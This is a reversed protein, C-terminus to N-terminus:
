ETIEEAAYEAVAIEQREFHAFDDDLRAMLQTRVDAEVFATEVSNYVMQKVEAYCVDTEAIASAFEHSIDTVFIGEDDTSLSVRLGLRLLNLFSHGALDDACGLRLSSTLNVEVPLRARAAYELISPDDPWRSGHGIREAGLLIADRINRVDGMGAAHFKRRWVPTAVDDSFLKGFLSQGAEFAPYDREPGLVDIGVINPFPHESLMATLTRLQRLHERGAIARHFGCNIRVIIGFESEARDTLRRWLNIQGPRSPPSTTFEVYRVGHERARDFFDDCIRSWADADASLLGVLHFTADFRSFGRDGEPMVYLREFAARDDASLGLYRVTAPHKELFAVEGAHIGAALHSSVDGVIPNISTLLARVTAPHLTGTPHVHLMGGKPLLKCFDRLRPSKRLPDLDIASSRRATRANLQIRRQQEQRLRAFDDPTWRYRDPLSVLSEWKTRTLQHGDRHREVLTRRAVHYREWQKLLKEELTAADHPSAHTTDIFAQTLVYLGLVANAVLAGYVSSAAHGGGAVPAKLLVISRGLLWVSMGFIGCLLWKVDHGLPLHVISLVTLLYYYSGFMHRLHRRMHTRRDKPNRRLEALDIAAVVIAFWGMLFVPLDRLGIVVLSIGTAPYITALLRDSWNRAGSKWTKVARYGILVQLIGFLNFAINRALGWYLWEQYYFTRPTGSAYLLLMAVVFAQGWRRHSLNRRRSLLTAPGIVFVTLYGLVEHVRLLAPLFSEM